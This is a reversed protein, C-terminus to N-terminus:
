SKQVDRRSYIDKIFFHLINKGKSLETLFSVRNPIPAKFDYEFIHSNSFKNGNLYEYATAELKM